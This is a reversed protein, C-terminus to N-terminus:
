LKYKKKLETLRKTLFTNSDALQTAKEIYKKAAKSQGDLYLIEAYNALANGDDESLTKGMWDLATKRQAKTVAKKGLDYGYSNVLMDTGQNGYYPVLWMLAEILLADDHHRQAYAMQQDMIMCEVSSKLQPYKASLEQRLKKWDPMRTTDKIVSLLSETRIINMLKQNASGTGMVADVKEQNEMMFQFIVNKSSNLFDCAFRIGRDELRESPTITQWFVNAIRDATVKDGVQRIFDVCLDYMFDLDREGQEFKRLRTYLQQKEDLAMHICQMFQDPTSPAGVVLHALEGQPTFFLMTPFAPIPYKKFHEMEKHWAKVYADDKSTKDAQLKVNIFHKNMFEGVKEDPFINKAMARCPGCWTTSIEVFIYKNEASAKEMVEKWSMSKDFRIGKEQAVVLTSMCTSLWVLSILILHKM